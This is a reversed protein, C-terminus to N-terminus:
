GAKQEEPKECSAEVAGYGGGGPTEMILRDGPGVEVGDIAKLERVTGDARIWRQRGPAGAEGGDLGHTGHNRHQTLLSLSMDQLFTLERVCGEGGCWRGQGGSDTRVEFREIRVPYRREVIEVDTIRTNTMHSHVADAGAFQRGAGTGGCVTEYYGFSENGFLTNNMTGQSGAMLGFAKLLTDVLRQSTEVNGGGVAPAEDTDFPPSLIGPPIVIEVPELLGENLPLSEQVLLRLVYTLASYVIAPTANLNGPHVEGSGGFDIRATDGDVAISVELPTGD